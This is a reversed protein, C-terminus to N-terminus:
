NNITTLFKHQNSRNLILGGIEYCTGDIDVTIHVSKGQPM